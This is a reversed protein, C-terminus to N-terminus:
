DLEHRTPELMWNDDGEIGHTAAHGTLLIEMEAEELREAGDDQEMWEVPEEVTRPPAVAARVAGRAAQGARGKAAGARGAARAREGM